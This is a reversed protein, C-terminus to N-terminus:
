EYEITSPPKTTLDYLVKVVSPIERTIQDALDKLKSWPVEVIEATMFDTTTVARIALAYGLVRDDGKVGTVKSRLMVVFYQSPEYEKLAREVIHTATRMIEAKESTVEGLIRVCFGPGPFPQRESINPPLKFYRALLRVQDKYLQKLPEITKFGFTQEANVGIQDLVNHQTKIRTSEIIDPYITGQVLYKAQRHKVEERFISYFVNRFAKRKEEPDILGQLASFFRAKGDIIDVQIGLAQFIKKVDEREEFRMLGTDIYISELQAGLAKHAIITAVSSDVGGSIASITKNTKVISKIETIKDNLFQPIKENTLHIPVIDPIM